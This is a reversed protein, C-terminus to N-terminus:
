TMTAAANNNNITINPALNEKPTNKAGTNLSNPQVRAAVEPPNENVQTKVPSREIRTPLSLSLNPGRMM